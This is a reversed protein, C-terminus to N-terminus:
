MEFISSYCLNKTYLPEPQPIFQKKKIEYNKVHMPLSFCIKIQIFEAGGGRELSANLEMYEKM